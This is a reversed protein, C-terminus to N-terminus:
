LLFNAALSSITMSVHVQLILVDKGGEGGFQPRDLFRLKEGEAFQESKLGRAALERRGLDLRTDAALDLGIRRRALARDRDASASSPTLAM